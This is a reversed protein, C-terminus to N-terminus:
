IIIVKQEFLKINKVGNELAGIFIKITTKCIQINGIEANRLIARIGHKNWFINANKLQYLSLPLLNM